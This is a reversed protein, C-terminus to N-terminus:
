NGTVTWPEGAAFAAYDFELADAQVLTAGPLDDRSELVRMMDEDFEVATVRRGAEVLAHTLAGTGAGIELVRAEGADAVLRAIRAAAVSDVLFNQGLRKKPRYGFRRLLERAHM